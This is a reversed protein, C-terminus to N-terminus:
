CLMNRLICDIVTVKGIMNKKGVFQLNNKEIHFGPVEPDM